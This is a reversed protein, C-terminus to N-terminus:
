RRRGCTSKSRGRMLGMAAAGILDARAHTHRTGVDDVQLTINAAAGLGGDSRSAGRGSTSGVAAAKPQEDNKSTSRHRMLEMMDAQQPPIGLGGPLALIFFMVAFGPQVMTTLKLIAINEKCLLLILRSVIAKVCM